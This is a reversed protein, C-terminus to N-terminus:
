VACKIEDNGFKERYKGGMEDRCKVRRIRFTASNAM